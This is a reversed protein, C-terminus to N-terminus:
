RMRWATKRIMASTAAAESKLHRQDGPLAPRRPEEDGAKTSSASTSIGPIPRSTLPARAPKRQADDIQLRGLQHFQKRRGRRRRSCPACSAACARDSSLRGASPWRSPRPRADQQELFGVEAGEHHDDRNGHANKEEAAHPRTQEDDQDEDQGGGKRRQDDERRVPTIADKPKM